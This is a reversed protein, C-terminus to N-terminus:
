YYKRNMLKRQEISVGKFVRKVYGDVDHSVVVDLPLAHSRQAYSLSCRRLLEGMPQLGEWELALVQGKGSAGM